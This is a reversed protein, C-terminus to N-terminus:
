SPLSDLLLPVTLSIHSNRGGFRLVIRPTTATKPDRLGDLLEVTIDAELLLIYGRELVHTVLLGSQICDTASM